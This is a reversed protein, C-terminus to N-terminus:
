DELWKLIGVLATFANLIIWGVLFWRLMWAQDPTIAPNATTTENHAPFVEVSVINAPTAVDSNYTIVNYPLAADAQPTTSLFYYSVAIGMFLISFFLMGIQFLSGPKPIFSAVYIVVAAVFMLIEFMEMMGKLFYPCNAGKPMRGIGEKM